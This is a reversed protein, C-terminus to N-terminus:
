SETGILEGLGNYIRVQRWKMGPNSDYQDKQEKIVKGFMRWAEIYSCRKKFVFEDLDDERALSVSFDDVRLAEKLENIIELVEDAWIVSDFEELSIWRHEVEHKLIVDELPYCIEAGLCRYDPLDYFGIGYELQFKSKVIDEISPVISEYLINNPKEAIPFSWKGDKTKVIYVKDDKVFIVCSYYKKNM